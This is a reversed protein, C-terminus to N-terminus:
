AKRPAASVTTGPRSRRLGLVAGALLLLWPASMAGGGSGVGSGGSAPAPTTGTGAPAASVTVAQDVSASLGLDDTVTLRVTFTGAATPTLSASAANTASSFGTVIGGGDVLTWTWAVISRGSASSSSASSLQLSSGAVATSLLDIRASLGASAAVAAGADLMGAGCYTTNCYCQLQQTSSSPAVCQSVLTGDGNDGGTTPFPRATAQLTTRVQTPTLGPQVSFMLGVAGAVLPSSFSTGVSYDYSDTWNSATPGQLGDDTAAVIPYLCPSGAATNVCNGGPAAITIEPGLDSFGVKTGVHRLALVSIVGRCNAPTGVPGGASNGAAAVIVAGKALVQDVVSQYSASCTGTGGLSMNLVKAPNPNDPVGAVPIGAAWLMGAQIDSDYGACKGLVRVPLVRVGPATGAMGIGNVAAGVLSATSTGHWSSSSVSCGTFRRQSASRAADATLDASSVWDGPDSPDSDRGGGDNSIISDAVFDYGPLLRGGDAVRGLDPHDFRVGTDLVAVVVNASGLSRAWAPEINIGAVAAGSPARLYWQGVDPGRVRVGAAAAAYLPEDRATLLRKRGNPEAFAVDPDAALQRALTAADVGAARVVQTRADIAGHARLARGHRKGLMEARRGIVDDTTAADARAALAHARTVSANPKFQVIVEGDAPPLDGRNLPGRPAASAGLMCVLLLPAVAVRM